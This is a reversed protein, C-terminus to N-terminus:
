DLFIRGKLSVSSENGHGSTGIRLWILGDWVKEDWQHRKFYRVLFFLVSQDLVAQPSRSFSVIQKSRSKCISVIVCLM